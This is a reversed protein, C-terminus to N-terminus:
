EGSQTQKAYIINMKELLDYDFLWAETEDENTWIDHPQLGAEIAQILPQLEVVRFWEFGDTSQKLRTAYRPQINM